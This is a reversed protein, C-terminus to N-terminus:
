CSLFNSSHLCTILPLNIEGDNAEQHKQSKKQDGASVFLEDESEDAESEIFDSMTVSSRNTCLHCIKLLQLQITTASTVTYINKLM